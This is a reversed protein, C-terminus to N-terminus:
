GMVAGYIPLFLLQPLSPIRHSSLTSLDPFLPLLISFVLSSYFSIFVTPLFRLSLFPLFVIVFIVFLFVVTVMTLRVGSSLSALVLVVFQEHIPKTDAAKQYMKDTNSGTDKLCM